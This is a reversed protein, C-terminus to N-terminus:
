QFSATLDKVANLTVACTKAITCIGAGPGSWGIFSSGAAATATLTVIKGALYSESCDTGCNIGIPTSTVTGNGTGDKTVTLAYIPQFTAAVNKVASMTVKCTLTTGTCGGTWGIFTSGNDPTATLTVIRGSTYPDNCDDGCRILGLDSDVNGSGVGPKTVTLMYQPSFTATATKAATMTVICSNTGTCGSTGSWGTFVYGTAPVATLTITTGQPYLETCDTACNIGALDSTVAGSGSKTVTLLYAPSFNATVTAANSGMTVLCIDTTADACFDGTWNVFKYGSAAVAKLTITQDALYPESCDSGCSIGAPISTVTGTGVKAVTLAYTSQFTATIDKAANMTVACSTTTTCTGVSPGSWGIFKSGTAVTATLTVVKGALYSETCDTGCSVGIPNSAVTGNGTGAKTLTLVYIPQFTATITKAANMTLKCTLTAGTCSGTWGIFMMGSDPTATLTVIQGSTYLENCDEGCNIGEVDSSIVGNGTKTIMLKYQPTFIATATKAATITVACTPNAGTCGSTGSWNSFIYGSAPVATLTITQGQAYLETCDTGCNIGAIDSSITGSGSKTVTLIYAPSFNATVTAANTGMSVACTDTTTDACFNGTWNVLKYGSAAVAKLSIAQDVLYPESCDTGCSIGAPTSTVTGTGAKIVTLVPKSINFTAFVTKSDNMNVVCDGTTNTCAGKWGAFISSRAPTASLTVSTGKDFDYACTSGCDINGTTSTVTGTGTGNKLVTLSPTADQSLTIYISSEGVNSTGWKIRMYGQEGWASGWSNRLIWSTTADDWGVLVIAHNGKNTGCVISENKSFVGSRYFNFAPGVCVGASIPGLNYIANKISDVTPIGGYEALYGWGSIRNPHYPVTKCIGSSASYPMDSELVAGAISQLRGLKNKHYDHASMSGGNCSRGEINCSLLFQESLDESAGIKAMLVAELTGVISFVWCSGCSRQDRIPTLGAGVNRWDWSTPLGSTLTNIFTRKNIQIEDFPPKEDEPSIAKANPNSLDIIEPIENLQLNIQNPSSATTAQYDKQDKQEWPRQYTLTVETYGEKVAKLWITQKAPAGVLGRQEFETEGEQVLVKDTSGVFQWLYGTSPNSELVLKIKKDKSAYGVITIKASGMLLSQDPPLSYLAERLKQISSNSSNMTIRQSNIGEHRVTYDIGKQTLNKDLQEQAEPSTLDAALISGTFILGIMMGLFSYIFVQCVCLLNGNCISPKFFKNIAM